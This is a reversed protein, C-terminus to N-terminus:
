TAEKAARRRAQNCALLDIKNHQFFVHLRTRSAASTMENSVHRIMGVARLDSSVTMLHRSM